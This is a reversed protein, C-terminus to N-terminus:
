QIAFQCARSSVGGMVWVWFQMGLYLFAEM